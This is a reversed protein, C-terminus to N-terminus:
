MRTHVSTDFCRVLAIIIYSYQLTITHSFAIKIKAHIHTATRVSQSHYGVFSDVILVPYSGLPAETLKFVTAYLFAEKRPNPNMGLDDPESRNM